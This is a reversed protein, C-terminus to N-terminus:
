VVSICSTPCCALVQSTPYAVRFDSLRQLEELASLACPMRMQAAVKPNKVAEALGAAAEALLEVDHSHTIIQLLPELIQGPPFSVVPVDLPLTTNARVQSTGSHQLYEKALSFMKNFAITDGSRKQFEVVCAVSDQYIRVKTECHMGSVIVEARITFKHKNVKGVHSIVIDEFFSLMKNAITIPPSDLRLTTLSLSDAVDQSLM